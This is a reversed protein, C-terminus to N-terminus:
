DHSRRTSEPLLGLTEPLGYLINMAQVAQSATGKALNDIASVIILTASHRDVVVGLDCFNTNTVGGTSPTQGAPLLRVFPRDRYFERYIAHVEETSLRKLLPIACTALIGRTAPVLHTTFALRVPQGRLRALKEEIEPRHRHRGVNYASVSENVEAFLYEAEIKRGAGSVGSLANVVIGELDFEEERKALPALALLTATPYCGPCALGSAGPIEAAFLEPLAYPFKPVLQPALHKVGYTAEYTAVSDFRFDASLDIVKVGNDLLAPAYEQAATHPLGLVVADSLRAMQDLDMPLIPLDTLSRAWPFYSAVPEPAEVRAMLCTLEVEPHALLWRLAEGSAYGKAGLIGTRIM